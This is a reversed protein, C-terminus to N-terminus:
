LAVVLWGRGDTAQARAMAGVAFLVASFLGVDTWVHGRLLWPVPAFAVVLMMALTRWRDLRLAGVLLGLGSWFLALHLAFVLRPGEVLADCVRWVFILMPPAIDTTAGGRAQWWAYASDFSMQGPWYAAIDFAFGAIAVLWPLLRPPVALS